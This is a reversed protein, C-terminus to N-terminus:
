RNRTFTIKYFQKFLIKRQKSFLLQLFDKMGVLVVCEILLHTRTRKIHHITIDGQKAAKEFSRKLHTCTRFNKDYPLAKLLEQMQARLFKGMGFLKTQVTKGAYQQRHLRISKRGERNVSQWITHRRIIFLTTVRNRPFIYWWTLVVIIALITEKLLDYFSMKTCEQKIIPKKKWLVPLCVTSDVM